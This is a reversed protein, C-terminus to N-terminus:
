GVASARLQGGSRVKDYQYHYQWQGTQIKHKELNRPVIVESEILKYREQRM